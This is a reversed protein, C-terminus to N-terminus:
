RSDAALCTLMMVLADDKTLPKYLSEDFQLEGALRKLERRSYSSLSVIRSRKGAARIRKTAAIGDVRPMDIDMLILDFDHSSALRVAEAGDNALMLSCGLDRLVRASADRHLKDDEALLVKLFRAKEMIAAPDVIESEKAVPLSFWFSTGKGPESRAGIAGGNKEAFEKCLILGLGTGSENHTGPSSQPKIDMRFIDQLTEENMGVGTDTITVLCQGEEQRLSAGVSGGSTTFKLANHTLNRLITHTMATDAFVWCCTEVKMDLRIGKAQAQASFLEQTETLMPSMDFAVPHCDIEGMQSRAWTLLEELFNKTSLTTTRVINLMEDTLDDTSRVADNFLLALGGVPGRLDHAVIAFFKDKITNARSLEQTRQAVTEELQRAYNYGAEMLEAKAHDAEARSLRLRDALALSLLVADILMGFDVAHYTYFSFRIFGSVTSATIFSGIFGAATAPLFYRAARNGSRLSLLGLMLVFPSYVVVWLISSSVHLRYGGLLATLVSSVISALALGMAWRYAQRLKTRLELFQIAFFLGALQFLYIFISHAWNGWAPSDPWLLPFLHGNYTAHTVLFTLLYAIYAAYIKERVSFFLFLNFLLLAGAAGYVIGFYGSEHSDAQFFASREWLTMGVVFPDRTQTRVLLRSRGPPLTLDFNIKRHPITRQRFALLDGGAYVQRTGDPEVLTVQVDDLWTPEFVLLRQLPASDLNEIPVSFWYTADSFGFSAMRRGTPADAVVPLNLIEEATITGDPDKVIRARPVLAVEALPSAVVVGGDPPGAVDAGALFPLCSLLIAVVVARFPM